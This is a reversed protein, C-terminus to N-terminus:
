RKWASLFMSSSLIVIKEGTAARILARFIQQGIWVFPIALRRHNRISALTDDKFETKIFGSM